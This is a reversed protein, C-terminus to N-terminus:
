APRGCEVCRGESTGRRQDCACRDVFRPEIKCGIDNPCVAAVFRTTVQKDHTACWDVERKNDCRCLSEPEQCWACPREHRHGEYPDTPRGCDVCRGDLWGRSEICDCHDPEILAFAVLVSWLERDWESGYNGKGDHGLSIIRHRHKGIAARLRHNDARLWRMNSENDAAM